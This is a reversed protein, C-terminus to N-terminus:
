DRIDFHQYADPTEDLGLNHSVCFGPVAKGAAILRATAPQLGQCQDARQGHAPRKGFEPQHRVAGAAAQWSM